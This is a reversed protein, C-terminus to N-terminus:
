TALRHDPKQEIGIQWTRDRGGQALALIERVSHPIQAKSCGSILDQEV